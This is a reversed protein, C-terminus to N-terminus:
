QYGPREAYAVSEATMACADGSDAGVCPHVTGWGDARGSTLSAQNVYRKTGDRGDHNCSTTCVDLDLFDETPVYTCMRCMFDHM